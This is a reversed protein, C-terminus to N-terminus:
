NSPDIAIIGQPGEGGAQLSDLISFSEDDLMYVKGAGFSTAYITNEWLVLGTPSFPLNVLTFDGSETYRILGGTGWGDPSLYHNGVKIAEGPSGGCEVIASVEMTSPDVITIRGNLDPYTTSYCHLMGSPQIKLWYTNVGTDIWTVEAGSSADFVSVGGPSSPDPYNAYSLFISGNRYEIGSPNARSPIMKEVVATETNFVAISDRTSLAAYGTSGSLVFSYPNSGEPFYVTKETTGTEDGSFIRLDASISSLVAFGNAGCPLVQNPADGTSWANVILSDAEIFYADANYALGNFWVVFPGEPMNGEVPGVADRCAASFLVMVLIGLLKNM